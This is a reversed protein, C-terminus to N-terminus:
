PGFSDVLHLIIDMKHAILAQTLHLSLLIFIDWDKGLFILPWKKIACYFATFVRTGWKARSSFYENRCVELYSTCLAVKYSIEGLGFILANRCMFASLQQQMTTASCFRHAATHKADSGSADDQSLDLSFTRHGWERMTLGWRSYSMRPMTMWKEGEAESRRTLLYHLVTWLSDSFM